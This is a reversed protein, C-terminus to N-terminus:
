KIAVNRESETLEGAADAAFFAWSDANTLAKAADFAGGAKPGIGSAHWSYRHDTTAVERHTLEHVLIRAWNRLGGKITNKTGFFASEIYVVDLDERAGKVFAESKWFGKNEGASANRVEPHDTLLMRGAGLVGQIKKFGATLTSAITALDEDTTNEDAFYRKVVTLAAPAGKSKPKSATALLILTKQVWKMSEQAAEALHKQDDASFYGETDSLQVRLTSVTAGKLALSPWDKLGKSLSLLWFKHSGRKRLFHLHRLLKLAAARQICAANIGSTAEPKTFDYGGTAALIGEDESVQGASKFISGSAAGKTVLKRLDDLAPASSDHPGKAETLKALKTVTAAWPKAFGGAALVTHAAAIEDTLPSRAM